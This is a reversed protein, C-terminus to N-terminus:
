TMGMLIAILAVLLMACSVAAFTSLKRARADQLSPDSVAPDSPQFMAPVLTQLRNTM